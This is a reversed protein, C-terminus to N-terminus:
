IEVFIKQQQQRMKKWQGMLEEESIQQSRLWNGFQYTSENLQSIYLLDQIWRHNTGGTTVGSCSRESVKGLREETHSGIEDWIEQPNCDLNVWLRDHRVEHGASQLAITAQEACTRDSELYAILVIAM